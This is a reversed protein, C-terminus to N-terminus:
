WASKTSRSASVNGASLFKTCSAIYSLLRFCLVCCLMLELEFCSFPLCSSYSGLIISFRSGCAVDVLWSLYDSTDIIHEELELVQKEWGFAYEFSFLFWILCFALARLDGATSRFQRYWDSRSVWSVFWDHNPFCFVPNQFPFSFPAFQICLFLFPASGQSM